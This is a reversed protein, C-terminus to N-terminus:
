GGTHEPAGVRLEDTGLHARDLFGKPIRYMRTGDRIQTAAIVEDEAPSGASLLSLRWLSMGWGVTVGVGVAGLIFALPTHLVNTLEDPNARFTATTGVGLLQQQGFAVIAGALFAFRGDPSVGGRLVVGDFNAELRGDAAVSYPLALPAPPVLQDAFRANLRIEASGDGEFTATGTHSLWMLARQIGVVHYDGRLATDDAGQSTRVMVHLSPDGNATM